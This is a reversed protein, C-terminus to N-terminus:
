EMKLVTVPDLRAARRAPIHAALLAMATLTLSVLVFTVPDLPTVGVLLGQLLRTVITAGALGIVIGTVTLAVSHRLVLTSVDVPRAGLAMRIGLEHTRRSVTSSMVAYIGICGLLLAMGGAIALMVLTFATRAMSREYIKGLPQVAAVPLDKNVAWVAKQLEELFGDTGTRNSRVVFAVSRKVMVGQGRFENLIIPWYVMPPATRDIGDDRVDNVVGIVERWPSRLNERIRRGIAARPDGWLERALNESVLAVPRRDYVETWTLDRGAILSNGVAHFFGPAVFNFTRIHTMQRDTDPSGEVIIPDHDTRGDMPASQAFSSGAVSPIAAIRDLIAQQMRVVQEPDSLQQGPITIRFTQVENPRTFGPQVQRLSQFTRIMLGAGILLVLALAVQVVVLAGQVRHRDRGQSHTRSAAQLASARQPVAYNIVAVLGFLVGCCVSVIVLFLLVTTDISIDDLRPLQAPATRSVVRVASSAIALGAIGGAMGLILSELLLVGAIRNWGAGLAARVAFEHRRADARVLFLNAVNAVAILLVVGLTAMVVWLVRGVDGVADQIFPQLTPTLQASEILKPFGPAPPFSRIWIPLMRALDANAHFITVGPKLRAVAQYNFYGLILQSEAFKLPLLLSPRQNLFRFSDPLVGIVERPQANVMVRRGLVSVDGVFREQWYQYTLIVTDPSGQAHDNASFRRGLVTSVGLLSLTGDTISLVEVQEPNPAETVTATSASWLGIDEFVRNQERYTVYLSPAMAIHSINLGPARHWVGVLEESNPFPLPKLLVGNLVSFIATNAGIGIALTLVAASTFGPNLRLSRAAFRIEQWLAPFM